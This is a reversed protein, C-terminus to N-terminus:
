PEIRLGAFGLARIPLFVRGDRIELEEIHEAVDLLVGACVIALVAPTKRGLGRETRAMSGRTSPMPM